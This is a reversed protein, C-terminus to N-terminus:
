ARTAEQIRAMLGFRGQTQTLDIVAGVANSFDSPEEPFFELSDGEIELSFRYISTRQVSVDALPWSGMQTHGAAIRLRDDVTEVTVSTPELRPGQLRGIYIAM